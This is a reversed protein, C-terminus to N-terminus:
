ELVRVPVNKYGLVNSMNVRKLGSEDVEFRPMRDLLINLAIQSEMRALAAGLCSHVGYGFALNQRVERTIDFSEPDTYADEDRTAAGVLLLVASGAPITRGHASFERMTYRGIYSAPPEFRLIEEVATPVLDRNERLMQWQGPHRAFLVLANGVFKTVTEAGAGGLLSVFAAVEVDDLKTTSGDEREVEAGVLDSIMDEGASERREAVLSFFYEFMEIAVATQEDSLQNIGDGRHLVFDLTTRIRQRNEPPVGLLKSIVEVPFPAAFDAVGDFTTGLGAAYEEITERVVPEKAAIARPTFARSVLVRLRSQEPPDLMIIGTSYKMGNKISNLDVGRSSSFTEWNKLAAAVDQYRSLAYFDHKENYYVPQHERLLAYTPYPNGFFDESFPDFEVSAATKGTGTV